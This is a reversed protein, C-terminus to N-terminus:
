VQNNGSGEDWTVILLSRQTKWAPSNFITPFNQKAWGDGTAVSCDHMDNCLNPTIWVYNPTSAASKLDTALQTFPVVRNCQSPTNLISSFYMFPDHKKAYNGSGGGNFCPSPMDEMYGGWTKGAATLRDVISPTTFVYSTGDDHVGQTSGSVLALYNP